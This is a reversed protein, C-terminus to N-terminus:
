RTRRSPTLERASPWCLLVMSICSTPLWTLPVTAKTKLLFVSTLNKKWHPIACQGVGPTLNAVPSTARKLIPGPHLLYNRPPFSHATLPSFPSTKTTLISRGSMVEVLAVSGSLLVVPGIVLNSSILPGPQSSDHYVLLVPWKPHSMAPPLLLARPSTPAVYYSLRTYPSPKTYSSTPNKHGRSPRSSSACKLVFVFRQNHPISPVPFHDHAHCQLGVKRRSMAKMKSM